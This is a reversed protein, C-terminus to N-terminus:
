GTNLLPSTSIVSSQGEHAMEIDDDRELNAFTHTRRIPRYVRPISASASAPVPHAANQEDDKDAAATSDEIGAIVLPAALDAAVKADNAAKESARLAAMEAPSRKKKTQDPIGPHKLVNSARTSM